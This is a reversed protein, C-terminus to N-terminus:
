RIYESGTRIQGARIKDEGQRARVHGQESRRKMQWSMARGLHFIVHGSRVKVIDSRVQSSM